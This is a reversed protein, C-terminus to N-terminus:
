DIDWFEILAAYVTHHIHIVLMWLLPQGRVESRGEARIREHCSLEWLLREGRSLWLCTCVSSWCFVISHFYRRKALIRRRRGVGAVSKLNDSGGDGSSSVPGWWTSPCKKGESAGFSRSFFSLLYIYFLYYSLISSLHYISYIIIPLLPM